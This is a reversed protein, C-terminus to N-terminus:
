YLGPRGHHPQPVRGSRSIPLERSGGHELVPQLRPPVRQHPEAHLHPIRQSRHTPVPVAAADLLGPVSGHENRQRYKVPPQLYLTRPLQGQALYHLRRKSYRHQLEISHTRHDSLQGPINTTAASTASGVTLFKPGTVLKWSQDNFCRSAATPWYHYCGPHVPPVPALKTRASAM